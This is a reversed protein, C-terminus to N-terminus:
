AGYDEEDEDLPESEYRQGKRPGSSRFDDMKRMQHRGAFILAAAIAASGVAAAGLATKSFKKPKDSM